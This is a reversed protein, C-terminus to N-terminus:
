TLIQASAQTTLNKKEGLFFSVLYPHQTCDIIKKLYEGLGFDEPRTEGEIQSHFEEFVDLFSHLLAKTQHQKASFFLKQHLEMLPERLYDDGRLIRGWMDPLFDLFNSAFDNYASPNKVLRHIFLQLINNKFEVPYDGIIVAKMEISTLHSRAADLALKFEKKKLASMFVEAYSPGTSKLLSFNM